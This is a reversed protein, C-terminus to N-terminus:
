PAAGTLTDLAALIDPSRIFVYIAVAVAWAKWNSVVAVLPGTVIWSLHAKEAAAWIYSWEDDEPPTTRGPHKDESM